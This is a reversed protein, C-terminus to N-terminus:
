RPHGYNQGGQPPPQQQQQQGWLMNHATHTPPAPAQQNTFPVGHAPPYPAQADFHMQQNHDYPTVPSMPQAQAVYQEQPTVYGAATSYPSSPQQYRPDYPGTNTRINHIHQQPWGGAQDEHVSFAMGIEGEYPEQQFPEQRRVTGPGPHAPLNDEGTNQGHLLGNSATPYENGDSDYRQRAPTYNGSNKGPSANLPNPQAHAILGAGEEAEPNARGTREPSVTGDLIDFKSRRFENAIPLGDAGKYSTDQPELTVDAKYSIDNQRSKRGVFLWRMGRAFAKVLDWPNMADAFAGFGWFGGQKEGPQNYLPRESEGNSPYKTAVGSTQYPKWPFAFLHLFSFIMMEICLLLSPIGVKLDPYALSENASLISFTSSTLISIMFSQWFSLFIVLKIALVKLFPRHPALDERLQIYFQIVMYM